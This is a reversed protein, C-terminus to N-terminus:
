RLCNTAPPEPHGYLLSYYRFRAPMHSGVSGLIVIAALLWVRYPWCWPVLALLLLKTLTMLGRGEHLWRGSPWAELVVLVAGSAITLYLWSLLRERPVDFVHGGVLVGALGLHMTRFAINLARARTLLPKAQVTALDGSM